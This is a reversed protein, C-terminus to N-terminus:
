QHYTKMLEGRVQGDEAGSDQYGDWGTGLMWLPLYNRWAYISMEVEFRSKIYGSCSVVGVLFLQVLQHRSEQYDKM